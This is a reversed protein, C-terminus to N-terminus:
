KKNYNKIKIIKAKTIGLARKSKKDQNNKGIHRQLIEQKKELNKLTADEYLKNEKLVQNIKKGYLKTTPIGYTDRLILGIKESTLGQKALKIIIADVDAENFKLWTPKEINTNGKAM